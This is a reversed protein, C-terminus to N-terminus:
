NTKNKFSGTRESLSSIERLMQFQRDSARKIPRSLILDVVMKHYTESIATLAQISQEKTEITKQLDQLHKERDDVLDQLQRELNNSVQSQINELYQTVDLSYNSEEKFLVHKLQELEEVSNLTMPPLQFKELLKHLIGVMMNFMVKKQQFMSDFNTKFNERQNPLINLTESVILKKM